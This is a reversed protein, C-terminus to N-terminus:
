SKCVTLCPWGELARIETTPASPPARVALRAKPATKARAQGAAVKTCGQRVCRASARGQPATSALLVTLAHPRALTARTSAQQARRAHSLMQAPPTIAPAAAPAPVTPRQAPRPRPTVGLLATLGHLAAVLLRSATNGLRVTLVPLQMPQPRTSALAALMAVGTLAPLHIAASMSAAQANQGSSVALPARLARTNGRPVCWVATLNAMQSTSGLM